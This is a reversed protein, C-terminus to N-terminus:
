PILRTPIVFYSRLMWSKGKVIHWISTQKWTTEILSLIELATTQLQSRHYWLNVELGYTPENTPENGAPLLSLLFQAERDTHRWFFVLKYWTQVVHCLRGHKQNFRSSLLVMWAPDWARWVLHQNSDPDRQPLSDTPTSLQAGWIRSLLRSNLVM